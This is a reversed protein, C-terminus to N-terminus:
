DSLRRESDLGCRGPCINILTYGVHGITYWKDKELDGGYVKVIRCGNKFTLLYCAKFPVKQKRVLVGQFDKYYKPDLKLECILTKIAYEMLFFIATGVGYCIIDYWSFSTGLLVSFFNNNEFGLLKVYDFYQMAEIFVAFIFVWLPLLKVKDPIFIRVFACLLVTVLIDGGYPRIFDDNVFLAILVETILFLIFLILYTVQTEKM